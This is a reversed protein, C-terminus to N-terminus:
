KGLGCLDVVFRALDQFQFKQGCFLQSQHLEVWIMHRRQSNDESWNTTPSLPTAQKYEVLSSWRRTACKNCWTYFIRRRRRAMIMIITPIIHEISIQFLCMSGRVTCLLHTSKPKSSARSFTAIHVLWSAFPQKVSARTSTRNSLCTCLRNTTKTTIKSKNWLSQAFNTVGIDLSQYEISRSHVRKVNSVEDVITKSWVFSGLHRSFRGYDVRPLAPPKM